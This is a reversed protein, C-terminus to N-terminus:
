KRSSISAVIRKMVETTDNPANIELWRDGLLLVRDEVEGAAVYGGNLCYIRHEQESVDLVTASNLRSVKATPCRHSDQENCGCQYGYIWSKGCQVLNTPGRPAGTGHYITIHQDFAMAVLLANALEVGQHWRQGIWIGFRRSRM